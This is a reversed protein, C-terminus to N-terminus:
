HQLNEPLNRLSQEILQCLASAQDRHAKTLEGGAANLEATLSNAASEIQNWDQEPLNTDAAIAPIWSVIDAIQDQANKEGGGHEHGHDDGHEHGHEDAHHHDNSNHQQDVQADAPNLRERIKSVADDLDVPWHHPVEHDHEFHSAKPVEENACGALAIFAIIPFLQKQM